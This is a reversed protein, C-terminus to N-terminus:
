CIKMSAIEKIVERELHSVIRTLDAFGSTRAAVISSEILRAELM